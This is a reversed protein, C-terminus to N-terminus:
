RVSISNSGEFRGKLVVQACTHSNSRLAFIVMMQPELESLIELSAILFEDKSKAGGNANAPLSRLQPLVKVVDISVHVEFTKFSPRLPRTPLGSQGGILASKL